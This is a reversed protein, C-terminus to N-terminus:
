LQLHDKGLILAAKMTWIALLNRIWIFPVKGVELLKLIKMM